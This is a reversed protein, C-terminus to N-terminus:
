FEMIVAESVGDKDGHLLRVSGRQRAKGSPLVVKLSVHHSPLLSNFDNGRRGIFDFLFHLFDVRVRLLGYDALSPFGTVSSFSIVM